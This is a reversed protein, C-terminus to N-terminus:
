KAAEAAKMKRYITMRDDDSLNHLGLKAAKADIKAVEDAPLAYGAPLQAGPVQETNTGFLFGPKEVPYLTAYKMIIGNLDKYVAMGSEGRAKRYAIEEEVKARVQHKFLTRGDKSVGNLYPAIAAEFQDSDIKAETVSAPNNTYDNRRKLLSQVNKNGLDPALAMIDAVPTNVLLEPSAMLKDQFERAVPSAQAIKDQNEQAGNIYSQASNWRGGLMSRTQPPVDNASKIKGTDVLRQVELLANEESQARATKLDAFWQGAKERAANLQEPTANPNDRRAINVAMEEAELRSPETVGGGVAFTKRKDEVSARTEKPVFEIWSKVPVNSDKKNERESKMALVEAEALAKPGIEYAAWAKEVNGSYKKALDDFKARDERTGAGAIALARDYDTPMVRHKMANSVKEATALAIEQGRAHSVADSLSQAMRAPMIDKYEKLYDEAVKSNGAALAGRAAADVGAAVQEQQAAPIDVNGRREAERATAESIRQLSGAVAVPNDWNAGANIGEAKVTNAHAQAFYDDTEKLSHNLLGAQFDLRMRGLASDYQEKAHGSLNAGNAVALAEFQTNYSDYFNEGNAGPQVVASSRQYLYGGKKGEAPQGARLDMMDSLTKNVATDAQAKELRRQEQEAQKQVEAGMGAIQGGVKQLARGIIGPEHQAVAM